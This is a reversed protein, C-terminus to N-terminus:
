NCLKLCIGISYNVGVSFINIGRSEIKVDCRFLFLKVNKVELKFLVLMIKVVFKVINGNMIGEFKFGVWLKVIYFVVEFLSVSFSIVIIVIIMIGIM